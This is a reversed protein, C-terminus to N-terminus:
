MKSPVRYRWLAGHRRTIKPDGKYGLCITVTGQIPSYIAIKRVNKQNREYSQILKSWLHTVYALFDGTSRQYRFGYHRDSM